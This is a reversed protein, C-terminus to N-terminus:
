ENRTPTNRRSLLYQARKCARCEVGKRNSRLISNEKTYEHGHPCHTIRGNLIGHRMGRRRNEEDTVAELHDPNVCARVSCLHDIVLNAPIAGKTITYAYRHARTVHEGPPAFCGYGSAETAGTWLWCGAETKDVRSWFHVVAAQHRDSTPRMDRRRPGGALPDGYRKLRQYHASCMGRALVDRDCGGISCTRTGNM